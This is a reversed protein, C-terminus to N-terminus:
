WSVKVKNNFREAFFRRVADVKNRYLQEFCNSAPFAMVCVRKTIFTLDLDFKSSIYRVRDQSVCHRISNAITSLCSSIGRKDDAVQDICCDPFCDDLKEFDIDSYTSKLKLSKNAKEIQFGFFKNREYDYQYSLQTKYKEILVNNISTCEILSSSLDTTVLM